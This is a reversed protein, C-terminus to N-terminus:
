KDVYSSVRALKIGKTLCFFIISKVYFTGVDLNFTNPLYKKEYFFANAASLFYILKNKATHESRTPPTQCCPRGYKMRFKILWIHWGLM